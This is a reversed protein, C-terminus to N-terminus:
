GNQYKWNRVKGEALWEISTQLRKLRTAERKADTIWEIYEKQNSYSFGAFTIAAQKNQKLAAQLDDPLVLAPKTKAVARAPKVGAANLKMAQKILSSIRRESPLDSLEGIRGFQGMASKDPQEGFLEKERWFGFTCHQKFAAMGCMLQDGYLFHPTGWKIAEQVDPCTKHVVSRLHRLIPQAFAASKAIYADVKPDTKAM